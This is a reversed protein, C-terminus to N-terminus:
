KKEDKSEPKKEDKKDDKKAPKTAKQGTCCCDKDVGCLKGDKDPACDCGAPSKDAATPKSDAAFATAFLVASFLLGIIARPTKM